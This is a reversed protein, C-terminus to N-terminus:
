LGGEEVPAPYSPGCMKDLGATAEFQRMMMEQAANMLHEKFREEVHEQDM